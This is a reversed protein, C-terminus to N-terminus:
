GTAPTAWTGYTTRRARNGMIQRLVGVHNVEVKRTTSDLMKWLESRFLLVAQVGVRFHSIATAQSIM